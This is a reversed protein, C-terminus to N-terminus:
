GMRNTPSDSCNEIIVDQKTGSKLPFTELTEILFRM